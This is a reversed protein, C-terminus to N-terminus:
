RQSLWDNLRDMGPASWDAPPLAVHQALDRKFESRSLNEAGLSMLHENPLQCDIFPMDHIAAFCSLHVFAVKSADIARSFMSEGFFLRGLLLGYLGGVLKDDQWVEISHADGRQHLDIYAQIMDQTIWTGSEYSRPAACARIVAAFDEDFSVRYGRNRLSQRLSRTIRLHAPYLVARPDPSWWLIPQGDSFWPFIGQRYAKLLRTAQLDGGIALLGNPDDLARDIDPFDPPEQQPLLFTPIDAPM